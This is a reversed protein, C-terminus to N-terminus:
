WYRDVRTCDLVVALYTAQRSTNVILRVRVQGIGTTNITNERLVRHCDLHDSRPPTTTTALAQHQELGCGFSLVVLYLAVPVFPAVCFQTTQRLHSRIVANSM